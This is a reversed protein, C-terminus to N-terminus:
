RLSITWKDNGILPYEQAKGSKIAGVIAGGVLGAPVTYIGAFVTGVGTGLAFQGLTELLNGDSGESACGIGMVVGVGLAAIGGIGAGRISYYGVRKHEGKYIVAMSSIPIEITPKFQPLDSKPKLFKKKKPFQILISGDKIGQYKGVIFNSYGTNKLAIWENNTITVTEDGRKLVLPVANEDAM